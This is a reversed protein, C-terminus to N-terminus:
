VCMAFFRDPGDKDAENPFLPSPCKEPDSSLFHVPPRGFRFWSVELLFFFCFFIRISRPYFQLLCFFSLPKIVRDDVDVPLSSTSSLFRHSSRSRPPRPPAISQSVQWRWSLSSVPHAYRSRSEALVCVCVSDLTYFSTWCDLKRPFCFRCRWLAAREGGGKRISLSWILIM